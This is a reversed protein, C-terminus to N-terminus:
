QPDTGLAMGRRAIEERYIKMVEETRTINRENQDLMEIAALAYAKKDAMKKRIASKEDDTLSLALGTGNCHKCIAM